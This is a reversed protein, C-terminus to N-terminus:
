RLDEVGAKYMDRESTVRALKDTTKRLDYAMDAGAQAMNENEATLRSNADELEIIRDINEGQAAVFGNIEENLNGITEGMEVITASKQELETAQSQVTATLGENEKRYTDAQALAGTLEVSTDHALSALRESRAREDRLAEATQWMMSETDKARAGAENAEGTIDYLDSLLREVDASLYDATQWMMSEADAAHREAVKKDTYMASAEQVLITNEKEFEEREKIAKDREAIAENATAEASAGQHDKQAIVRDKEELEHIRQAVLRGARKTKGKYRTVTGELETIRAGKKANESELGEIQASYKKTAVRIGGKYYATNIRKFIASIMRNLDLKHREIAVKDK